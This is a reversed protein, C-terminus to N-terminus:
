PAATADNQIVIESTSTSSRFAQLELELPIESRGPIVPTRDPTKLHPFTITTSTSAHALAIIGIIGGTATSFPYLDNESATYPQSTRLSIVRDTPCFSSPTQSNRYRIDITHDITLEFSNFPRATGGLTLTADFIMYPNADETAPFTLAPFAIIGKTETDAVIDISMELLQGEQGRLTVRSTLCNLYEYVAVVKDILVSFETLGETLTWDPTSFSFGMYPLLTEFDRPSPNLTVSGGVSFTGNVTRAIERGRVGRLGATNILTGQRRVSESQIEMLTAGTSWDGPTDPKVALRGKYGQSANCGM